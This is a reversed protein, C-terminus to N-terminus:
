DCIRVYGNRCLAMLEKIKKFIELFITTKKLKREYEKTKSIKRWFLDKRDFNSSFSIFCATIVVAQQKKAQKIKNNMCISEQMM